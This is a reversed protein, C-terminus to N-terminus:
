EAAKEIVIEVGDTAKKFVRPDGITKGFVTIASALRIEQDRSVPTPGFFICFAPGSPWYGLDGANVVEQGKEL